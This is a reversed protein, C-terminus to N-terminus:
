ATMQGSVLMRNTLNLRVTDRHRDVMGPILFADVLVWIAVIALLLFGVFIVLTLVGLITLVLMAVASGTHGLYFRHGGLGGAFFWLVYAITASKAENTIRQEILIQEQTSLAM